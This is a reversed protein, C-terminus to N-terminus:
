AAEEGMPIDALTTRQLEAFLAERARRWPQHLVCLDIAPCPKGRLVCRGEEMPGEVAEILDYLTIGAPPGDLRYGGTPGPNSEVWGRRVLPQLVHPLYSSTTDLIEALDAGKLLSEHRGLEQIARIALETKRSM